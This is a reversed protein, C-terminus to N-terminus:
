VSSVYSIFCGCLKCYYCGNKIIKGVQHACERSVGCKACIMWNNVKDNISGFGVIAKFEHQCDDEHQYADEEEEAQEMLSSKFECDIIKGCNQCRVLGAGKNEVRLQHEDFECTKPETKAPLEASFITKEYKKCEFVLDGLKQFEHKCNKGAPQHSM